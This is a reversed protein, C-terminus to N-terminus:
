ASPHSEILGLMEFATVLGAHEPGPVVLDAQAIVEPRGDAMAVGIGAAAIMELDNLNDGCAITDALDIGLATAAAELGLAKTVRTLFLEGAGVGMSAISSPFVSVSPGLTAAITDLEVTGDFVTIKGIGAPDPERVELGAVIGVLTSLSALGPQNAQRSRAALADYSDRRAYSVEPTEVLYHSGAQDLLRLATRALEEPFRIDQIVDEGVAVYAGAGAVVGDFGAALLNGGLLSVPRGTCLFVAHGAHRADRVAQSHAPPVTGHFAYTGDVDLFIARRRPAPHASV